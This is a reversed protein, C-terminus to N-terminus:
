LDPENSKKRMLAGPTIGFEKTFQSIFYSESNFGCLQATEAVSHKELLLSRASHLRIISLYKNLTIGTAKKFDSVLKSRSIFFEKAISDLTIDFSYNKVMYNIVDMIYPIQPTVLFTNDPTHWDFLEHLILMTLLDFSESGGKFDGFRRFLSLLIDRKEETLTFTILNSDLFFSRAETSSFYKTIPATDYFIMYREYLENPSSQNYHINYPNFILVAPAAFSLKQGNSEVALHGQTMFLLECCSHVHASKMSSMYTKSYQMRHTLPCYLTDSMLTKM